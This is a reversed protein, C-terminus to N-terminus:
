AFPEACLGTSAVLLVLMKSALSKGILSVSSHRDPPVLPKLDERRSMVAGCPLAMHSQLAGGLDCVCCASVNRHRRPKELGWLPVSFVHDVFGKPGCSTGQVRLLSASNLPRRLLGIGQVQIYSLMPATISTM